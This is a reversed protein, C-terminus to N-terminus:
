NNPDTQVAMQENAPKSPKSTRSAKALQERQAASMSSKFDVHYGPLDLATVVRNDGQVAVSLMGNRCQDCQSQSAVLMQISQNAGQVILLKSNAATSVLSLTYDGAPLKTNKWQIPHPLTFSAARDGARATSSLGGISLLGVAVVLAKSLNRM